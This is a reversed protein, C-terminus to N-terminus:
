SPRRRARCRARASPRCGRRARGSSAARGPRPRTRPRSRAPRALVRRRLQRGLPDVEHDGVVHARGVGPELDVRIPRDQEFGVSAGFRRRQEVFSCSAPRTSSRTTARSPPSSPRSTVELMGQGNAGCRRRLLSTRQALVRERGLRHGLTMGVLHRILDAVAHEVRDQGLVGVPPDRALREHVVPRHTTAPSILVLACM